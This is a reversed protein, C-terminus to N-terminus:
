SEIRGGITRFNTISAQWGLNYEGPIFPVYYSVRTLMDGYREKIRAPLEAWTGSVAFTDLMEDTIQQPMEAWQGRVAMKGLRLATENWGHLDTVVRYAPTSMYFSIQQRAFQEYDARPKPGDTPIAFVATNVGFGERTKGVQQLGKEIEPLAYERLYNVTHFAHIHVGDGYSGALRLMQENV